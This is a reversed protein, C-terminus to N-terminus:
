RSRHRVLKLKSSGRSVSRQTSVFCEMNIIGSQSDTKRPSGDPNRSTKSLEEVVKQKVVDGM